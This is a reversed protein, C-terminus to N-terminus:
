LLDPNRRRTGAMQQIQMQPATKVILQTFSNRRPTCGWSASSCPRSCSPAAAPFKMPDLQVTVEVGRCLGRQPDSPVRGLVRRYRVDLVGEVIQQAQEKLHKQGAAPDSFDYLRLIDHLAVRRAPGDQLALPSPNLHAVIDWARGRRMAPRLPPSPPRVWAVRTVPAPLLLSWAPPNTALRLPLDRNTCLLELALLPDAPLRPEFARNVLAIDVETGADNEALSRQRRTMWYLGRRRVDPPHAPAFFPAYETTRQVTPDSSTVKAISYVEFAQPASRDAVIRYESQGRQLAIPEATKDFLNVVPVCDLRFTQTDVGAELVKLTKNCFIFVNCRQGLRTGTLRRWGALDIFHFKMPCTFFETLLRYGMRASDPYPLLGEDKAFGVARLCQEPPLAVIGSGASREPVFAVQIAHNLILEYLDPVLQPEGALFFRLAELQLQDFPLPGISELELHIASVAAAPPEVRMPFPPVRFTARQLRVPWLRM